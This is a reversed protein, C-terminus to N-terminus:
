FMPQLMNELGSLAGLHHHSRGPFVVQITPKLSFPCFCCGRKAKRKGLSSTSPQSLHVDWCLHVLIRKEM